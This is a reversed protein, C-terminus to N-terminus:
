DGSFSALSIHQENWGHGAAALRGVAENVVQFPMYLFLPSFPLCWFEVVWFKGVEREKRAAAEDRRRAKITALYGAGEEALERMAPAFTRLRGLTAMPGEHGEGGGAVTGSTADPRGEEGRAGGEGAGVRKLTLEFEDISSAVERAAATRQDLGRLRAGEALAMEVRLEEREMDVQQLNLLLCTIEILHSTGQRQTPSYSACSQRGSAVLQLRFGQEGTSCGFGKAGAKRHQM